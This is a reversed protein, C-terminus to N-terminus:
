LFIITNLNRRQRLVQHKLGEKPPRGDAKAVSIGEPAVVLAGVSAGPQLPIAVM